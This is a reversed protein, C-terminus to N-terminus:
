CLTYTKMLCSAFKYVLNEEREARGYGNGCEVESPRFDEMSDRVLEERGSMLLQKNVQIQTLVLLVHNFPDNSSTLSLPLSPSSPLSLFSPLLSPSLTPSSCITHDRLAVRLKMSTFMTSLNGRSQM